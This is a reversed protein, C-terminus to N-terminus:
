LLVKTHPTTPIVREKYWDYWDLQVNPYPFCLPYYRLLVTENVLLGM